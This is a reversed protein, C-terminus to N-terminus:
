QAVEIDLVLSNREIAHELCEVRDLPELQDDQVSAAVIGERLRHLSADGATRDSASERFDFRCHRVRQDSESCLGARHRVVSVSLVTRERRSENFVDSFRSQIEPKGKTADPIVHQFAGRVALLWENVSREAALGHRQDRLSRLGGIRLRFRADIVLESSLDSGPLRPVRKECTMPCAQIRVESPRLVAFQRCRLLCADLRIIRSPLGLLLGGLFGSFKAPLKFFLARTLGSLCLM